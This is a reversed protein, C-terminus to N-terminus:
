IKDFRNIKVKSIKVYEYFWRRETVSDRSPTLVVKLVRILRSDNTVIPLRNSLSIIEKRDKVPIRYSAILKM